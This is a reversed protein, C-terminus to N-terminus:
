PLLSVIELQPSQNHRQRGRLSLMVVLHLLLSFSFVLLCNSPRGSLLLYWSMDAMEALSERGLEEQLASSFTMRNDLSFPLMMNFLGLAPTFFFVIALIRATCGLFFLLFTLVKGLDPLHYKKKIIYTTLHGTCISQLSLSISIYFVASSLFNGSIHGDFVELQDLDFGGEQYSPKLLNAQNRLGLDWNNLDLIIRCFEALQRGVTGGGEELLRCSESHLREDVQDYSPGARYVTEMVLLTLLLCPVVVAVVVLSEGAALCDEEDVDDRCGDPRRDCRVACVLSSNNSRAPCLFMSATVPVRTDGDQLCFEGESQESDRSEDSGDRCREGSYETM